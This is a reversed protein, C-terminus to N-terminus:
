IWIFLEAVAQVDTYVTIHQGVVIVTIDQGLKHKVPKTRLISRYM